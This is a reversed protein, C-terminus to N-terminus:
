GECRAQKSVATNAVAGEPNITRREVGESM